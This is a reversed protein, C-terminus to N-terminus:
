NKKCKEPSVFWYIEFPLRIMRIAKTTSFIYSKMFIIEKQHMARWRNMRMLDAIYAIQHLWWRCDYTYFTFHTYKHALWENRANKSILITINHIATQCENWKSITVWKMLIRTNTLIEFRPSGWMWRSLTWRKNSIKSISHM